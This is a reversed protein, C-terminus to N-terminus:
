RLVELPQEVLRESAVLLALVVLVAAAVARAALGSAAGFILVCVAAAGL